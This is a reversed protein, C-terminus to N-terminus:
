EGPAPVDKRSGNKASKSGFYFGLISGLLSTEAPFLVSLIEKVTDWTTKPDRGPLFPIAIAALVTLGFLVSFGLALLLRVDADEPVLRWGKGSGKPEYAIM